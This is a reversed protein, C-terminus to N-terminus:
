GIGSIGAYNIAAHLIDNSKGIHAGGGHVAVTVPKFVCQRGAYSHAM